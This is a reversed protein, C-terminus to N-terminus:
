RLEVAPFFRSGGFGKAIVSQVDVNSRNAWLKLLVFRGSVPPDFKIAVKYKGSRIHFKARTVNPDNLGDDYYETGDPREEPPQYYAPGYVPEPGYSNGPEREDFDDHSPSDAMRSRAMMADLRRLNWSDDRENGDEFRPVATWRERDGGLSEMEVRRRMSRLRQLRFDIVDPSSTEEPGPEEDSLMTVPAGEDASIVVDTADGSSPIECHAEPDERGFGFDDGYYSTPHHYPDSQVEGRARAIDDDRSEAAVGMANRMTHMASARRERARDLTADVEPDRLAESLTIGREPSSRFSRQRRYPPTDVGQRRAHPPPDMYKSLDNLSMSVYILGERVPATFGHEPGVIHLKELCFPSDDGHRLVISSSPRDSCYVSKDHRLLNQPGLYTTPSRPDRQEGGDCSIIELKLRGPEVQGYYGYKIPQRPPTPADFDLRRRKARRRISDDSGTDRAELGPSRQRRRQLPFPRRATPPRTSAGMQELDSAAMDETARLASSLRSRRTRPTSSESTAPPQDYSGMRMSFPRSDPM